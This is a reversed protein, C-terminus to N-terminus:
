KTFETAAVFPSNIFTHIYPYYFRTFIGVTPVADLNGLVELLYRVNDLSATILHKFVRVVLKVLMRPDDLLIDVIRKQIM